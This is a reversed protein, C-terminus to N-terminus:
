ESGDMAMVGMMMMLGVDDRVWICREGAREEGVEGRRHLIHPLCYLGPRIVYFSLYLSM